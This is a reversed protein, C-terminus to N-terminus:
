RGHQEVQLDVVEALVSALRVEDDARTQFVHHIDVAATDVTHAHCPPEGFGGAGISCEATEM